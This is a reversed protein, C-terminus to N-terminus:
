FDAVSSLWFFLLLISLLPGKWRVPGKQIAGVLGSVLGVLSLIMGVGATRQAIPDYYRINAYRTYIAAGAFLLASLSASVFGILSLLAIRGTRAESRSYALSMWGWGIWAALGGLLWATATADRTMRSM